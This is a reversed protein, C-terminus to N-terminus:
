FLRTAAQVNPGAFMRAIAVELEAATEVCVVGERRRINAVAPMRADEHDQRLVLILPQPQKRGDRSARLAERAAAITGGSEGPEIVIVVASLACILSNRAMARRVTWRAASDFQSVVTLGDLEEDLGRYEERLRFREIGEALVAVTSGGASLAAVHGATDVGRAYGSVLPVQLEVAVTGVVQALEIGRESADRAGCLGLGATLLLDARGHLDLSAASANMGRFARMQEPLGPAALDIRQMEWDDM